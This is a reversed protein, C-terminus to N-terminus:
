ILVNKDTLYHIYNEGGLGKVYGRVYRRFIDMDHGSRTKVVELLLSRIEQCVRQISQEDLLDHMTVPRTYSIVHNDM